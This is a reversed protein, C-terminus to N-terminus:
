RDGRKFAPLSYDSCQRCQILHGGHAVAQRIGFAFPSKLQAPCRNFSLKRLCTTRSQGGVLRLTLSKSLHSALFRSISGHITHQLHIMSASRDKGFRTLLQAQRSSNDNPSTTFGGPHFHGGDRAVNFRGSGVSWLHTSTSRVPLCPVLTYLAIEPLRARLDRSEIKLHQVQRASGREPSSSTRQWNTRGLRLPWRNDHAQSAVTHRAGM